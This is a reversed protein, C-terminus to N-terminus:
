AAASSGASPPPPQAPSPSSAPTSRSRTCSATAGPRSRRRPRRAGASAPPRRGAGRPRPTSALRRSRRPTRSGCWRSGRTSRAWGSWRRTRRAPRRWVRRGRRRRGPPRAGACGVRRWGSARARGVLMEVAAAAEEARGRARRTAVLIRPSISARWGRSGRSGRGAFRRSPWGNSASPRALERGFGLVRGLNHQVAASLDFFGWATAPALAQRLAAEARQFDGLESYMYGLNNRVACANRLDGAQEFAQLASELGTLCRGLDGAASARVARVQHLLGLAQPDLAADPEGALAGITAILPDAIAYRGGFVLFHAGWALLHNTRQPHGSRGHAAVGGGRAVEREVAELRGHKGAAIIAQALARLWADGGAPLDAAAALALREAEALEGRWVHAEAAILRLKGAQEGSAGGAIGLEAREIAAVLDNASSRRRPRASTGARRRAGARRGARFHEALVMADAAGAQELWDGALRHGLVGDEDTLMAYAAERVLAHAFVCSSTGGRLARRRRAFSWSTRLWGSSRRRLRRRDGRRRGLLAALGARSFREGFVAAARLVRKGDAGEADLRAQVMALVSDPLADARGAAAARILEELYFANGDAREVLAPWCRRRRDSGLAQRM